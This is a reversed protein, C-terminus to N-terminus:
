GIGSSARTLGISHTHCAALAEIQIGALTGLMYEMSSLKSMLLHLWHWAPNVKAGSKVQARLQLLVRRLMSM